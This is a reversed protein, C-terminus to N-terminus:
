RFDKELPQAYGRQRSNQLAMRALGDLQLVAASVGEIVPVQLELELWQRLEVMGACGLVIAEAGDQELALRCEKLLTARASATCNELELVPLESARVRACQREFGYRLVLHQLAPISRGLTTVISFRNSVVSAAMCAAQCLGMVPGASVCRAADVGTDDFCGIVVADYARAEKLVKLMPPVAFAEDYFGEISVPGSAATHAQLDSDAPLVSQAALAMADTMSATSNPNILLIRPM